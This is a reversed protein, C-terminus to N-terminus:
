SVRLVADTVLVNVTDTNNEVYAELYDSQNMGIRWLLTVRKPDGSSINAAAGSNTVEVGNKYLYYKIAKNTGSVPDGTFSFSVDFHDNKVGSYTIRGTADGSFHSAHEETWTGALKVATGAVAIVTATANGIQSMLCDKHTDQVVDNIFLQWRINQYNINQLPTGAGFFRCNHVAGLGGTNINGSSVLGSMFISTGNLTSFGDTVSLGNFTSTGLDYLIGAAITTLNAELLMVGNSGGFIIGNTTATMQTDDFHIGIFDDITGLTAANIVCSLIQFIELGSGNFDIFTGTTCNITIDKLSWNKNTSTFMVGSGTYTLAVVIADSGTIVSNNGLVFRSATTIDNRVAYETNDALTIVGAVAAPFDNINNVIVTKTSAPIASLAIQISGNTGSVNIGTGAVLSRFKPSVATLDDILKVGTADEQFNHELTIGNQPSVSSKIGSGDEINRINNVSGSTNLIPTGLPDGDQVITGTVGLSAQFDALSIKYNTNGSIYSLKADSPLSTQTLFKSIKRDKSQNSM